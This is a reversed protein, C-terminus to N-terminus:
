ARVVRMTGTSGNVSAGGTVLDSLWNTVQPYQAELTAGDMYTVSIPGVTESKVARDITAELSTGGILLLAAEFQANKVQTPITNPDVAYGEANVVWGRPWARAQTMTLARGKWRGRYVNDLYTAAKILAAEKAADTGTWSSVGRALFYADAEAVTGYTDASAGGITADLAM